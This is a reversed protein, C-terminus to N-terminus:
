EKFIKDLAAIAKQKALAVDGSVDGYASEKIGFKKKHLDQLTIIMGIIAEENTENRIAENIYKTIKDKTDKHNYWIQRMATACFGRLEADQDNIMREYLIDLDATTGVWGLVIICRYRIDHNKSKLNEIAIVRAYPSRVHGLIEIVDAFLTENNIGGKLKSILFNSVAIKDKRLDFCAKIYGDIKDNNKNKLLDYHFNLYEPSDDKLLLEEFDLYEDSIENKDLHDYTEKLNALNTM